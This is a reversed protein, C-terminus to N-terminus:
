KKSATISTSDDQARQVKKYNIYSARGVKEMVRCTRSVTIAHERSFLLHFPQSFNFERIRPTKLFSKRLSAKVFSCIMETFNVQHFNPFLIMKLGQAEVTEEIWNKSNKFNDPLYDPLVVHWTKGM